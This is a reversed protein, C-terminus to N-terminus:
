NTKWLLSALSFFICQSLIFFVRHSEIQIIHQPDSTDYKTDYKTAQSCARSNPNWARTGHSRRLRSNRAFGWVLSGARLSCVKHNDDSYCLTSSVYYILFLNNYCYSSNSNYKNSNNIMNMWLVDVNSQTSLLRQMRVVCWVLCCVLHLM